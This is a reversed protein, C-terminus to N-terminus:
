VYNSRLKSSERVLSSIPGSGDLPFYEYAKEFNKRSLLYQTRSPVVSNGDIKYTFTCGTKTEFTVGELFCIRKWITQFSTAM